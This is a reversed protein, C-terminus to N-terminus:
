SVPAGHLREDTNETFGRKSKKGFAARWNASLEQLTALEAAVAVDLCPDFRASIVKSLSRDPLLRDILEIRNGAKVTGSELVRYYWGTRGTTQFRTAM